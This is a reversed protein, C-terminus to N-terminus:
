AKFTCSIKKHGKKGCNYCTIHAFSTSKNLNQDGYEVLLRRGKFDYQDYDKIALIADREEFFLIYADNGEKDIVDIEGSNKFLERLDSKNADKSIYNVFICKKNNKVKMIFHAHNQLNIRGM